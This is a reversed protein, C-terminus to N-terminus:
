NNKENKPNQLELLYYIDNSQIIPHSSHAAGSNIKDTPDFSTIEQNPCWNVAQKLSHGRVTQFFCHDRHYRYALLPMKVKPTQDGLKM